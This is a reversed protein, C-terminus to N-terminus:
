TNTTSVAAASCALRRAVTRRIVGSRFVATAFQYWMQHSNRPEGRLLRAMHRIFSPQLAAAGASIEIRPSKACPHRSGDTPNKRRKHGSMCSHEGYGNSILNEPLIHFSKNLASAFIRSGRMSDATACFPWGVGIRLATGPDANFSRQGDGSGPRRDSVM